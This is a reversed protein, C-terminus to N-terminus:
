QSANQIFGNPVITISFNLSQIGQVGYKWIQDLLFHLTGIGSGRYLEWYDGSHAPHSHYERVGPLCLFPPDSSWSPQMLTQIDPPNIAPNTVRPLPSPLEEFKYPLRTFPDVLRVSPPRFDYDTFDLLIGFVVCPPRMNPTAM